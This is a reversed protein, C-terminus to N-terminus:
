RIVCARAILWRGIRDCGIAFFLVAPIAWRKKFTIHAITKAM